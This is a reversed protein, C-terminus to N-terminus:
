LESCTGIEINPTPSSSDPRELSGSSVYGVMSFSMYRMTKINIRFERPYGRCFLWGSKKEIERRCYAVAEKKGFIAVEWKMNGGEKHRRVLYKNNVKFRAHVWDKTTKNYRFGNAKEAICIYGEAGWAPGSVVLAVLVAILTRKM